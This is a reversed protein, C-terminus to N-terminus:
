PVHEAGRKYLLHKPFPRLLETDAPYFWVTLLVLLLALAVLVWYKTTAPGTPVVCYGPILWTKVVRPLWPKAGDRLQIVRWTRMANAAFLVWVGYAVQPPATTASLLVVLAIVLLFLLIAVM